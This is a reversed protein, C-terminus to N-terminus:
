LIIPHIIDQYAIVIAMAAVAFCFCWMFNNTAKAQKVEAELQAVKATNEADGQALQKRLNTITAAMQISESELRKTKATEKTLKERLGAIEAAQQQVTANAKKLADWEMESRTAKSHLTSAAQDVVGFFLETSKKKNNSRLGLAEHMSSLRTIKEYNGELLKHINHERHIAATLPWWCKEGRWFHITLDSVGGYSCYRLEKQRQEDDGEDEGTKGIKFACLGKDNYDIYKLSIKGGKSARIVRRTLEESTMIYISGDAWSSNPHLQKGGPNQKPPGDHSM